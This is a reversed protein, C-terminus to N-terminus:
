KATPTSAGQKAKASLQKAAPSAKAKQKGENLQAIKLLESALKRATGPTLCLAAKFSPKGIDCETPVKRRLQLWIRRDDSYVHVADTGNVPLRVARMGKPTAMSM